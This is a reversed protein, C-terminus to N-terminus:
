NPPSGGELIVLLAALTSECDSSGPGAVAERWGEAIDLLTADGGKRTLLQHGTLVRDSVWERSRACRESIGDLLQNFRRILPQRPDLSGTQEVALVEGFSRGDRVEGTQSRSTASQNPNVSEGDYKSVRLYIGVGLALGVLLLFLIGLAKQPRM